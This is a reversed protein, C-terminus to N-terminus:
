KDDDDVNFLWARARALLEDVTDSAFEHRAVNACEEPEILQLARARAFRKIERVSVFCFIRERERESAFSFNCM